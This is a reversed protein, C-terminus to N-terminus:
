KILNVNTCLDISAMIGWSRWYGVSARRRGENYERRVRRAYAYREKRKRRERQWLRIRAKLQIM